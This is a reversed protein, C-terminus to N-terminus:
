EAPIGELRVTWEGILMLRISLVRITHRGVPMHGYEAGIDFISFGELGDM